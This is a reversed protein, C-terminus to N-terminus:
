VKALYLHLCMIMQTVKEVKITKESYFLFDVASVFMLNKAEYFIKFEYFLTFKMNEQHKMYIELDTVTLLNHQSCFM